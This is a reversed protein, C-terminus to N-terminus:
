PTVTISGHMSAHIACHYTFTGASSFIHAFSGGATTGGYPDGMPGSLTGSDFASSDSTVSHSSPGNNMWHVTTGMSVTLTTPSFSYDAITVTNPPVGPSNNPASPTSGGCGAIAIAVLCGVLVRM